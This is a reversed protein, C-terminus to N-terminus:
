LDKNKQLRSLFYTSLTAVIFLIVAAVTGWTGTASDYTSPIIFIAAVSGILFGIVCLHTILRHRKLLYGLLKATALLGIIAGVFILALMRLRFDNVAHLLTNYYGIIVLVLSGSIGPLLMSAAAIFGSLALMIATTTNWERVETDPTNLLAFIVLLACTVVIPILHWTKFKVNDPKNPETDKQASEATDTTIEQPEIPKTDTYTKAIIMPISGIVLGAFAAFTPLSFDSVLIELLRSFAIIGGIAGLAIPTLFIIASFFQKKSKFMGNINFIILGYIGCLILITGASFGPVVISAGVLVGICFNLLHALIAKTRNSM